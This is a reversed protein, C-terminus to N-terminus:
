KAGGKEGDGITKELADAASALCEAWKDKFDESIVGDLVLPNAVGYAAELTRDEDLPNCTVFYGRAVTAATVPCMFRAKNLVAAFALLRRYEKGDIVTVIVVGNKTDEASCHRIGM